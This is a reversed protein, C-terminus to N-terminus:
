AASASGQNILVVMPVGELLDGDRANYVDNDVRADRGRTSVVAGGELFADAVSVAQDLLGGPNDRLDLVVGTMDEGLQAKLDRIADELVDTTQETFQSIRIYGIDGDEVRWAVPKVRIIERVLTVDFVDEGERAVTITIAAGAAGRMQD